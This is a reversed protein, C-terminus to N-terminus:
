QGTRRTFREHFTPGPKWHDAEPHDAPALSLLVYQGSDRLYYVLYSHNPRLHVPPSLRKAFRIPEGKETYLVQPRWFLLASTPNDGAYLREFYLPARAYRWARFILPIILGAAVVGIVVLMGRANLALLRPGLVLLGAIMLVLLIMLPETVMDKWQDATLKGSRNAMLRSRMESSVSDRMSEPMVKKIM